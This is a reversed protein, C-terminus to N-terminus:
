RPPLPPITIREIILRRLDVAPIPQLPQVRIPEIASVANPQPQGEDLQTPQALQLSTAEVRGPPPQPVKTRPSAAAAPRGPKKVVPQTVEIKPAPSPDPPAVEVPQHRVVAPATPTTSREPAALWIAAVVMAAAAGIGVTLRAWTWRAPPTDTLRELVRRRFGPNPEASMIERVARDIAADVDRETRLKDTM